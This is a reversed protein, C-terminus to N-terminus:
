QINCSDVRGLFEGWIPGDLFAKPLHGKPAQSVNFILNNNSIWLGRFRWRVRDSFNAYISYDPKGLKGGLSLWLNKQVNFGFQGGSSKNWLQNIEMLSPCSLKELDASDIFGEFERNAEKLIIKKTEQDAQQLNGSALFNSLQEYKSSSITPIYSVTNNTIPPSNQNTLNLNLSLKASLKPLSELLKHLPIGLNFGEKIATGDALKTGEARGHIGILKGDQNLVPGGSMGARTINTYVLDYGSENGPNITSIEGRTINFTQSQIAQGPLPFGAVFVITLPRINKSDTLSAIQYNNPSQFSIIALDYNPIIVINQTDITHYKQDSTILDAEEGRNINNVVHAATLVYYKNGEKAIIVGSGPSGPGKILVTIKEAIIGIEEQSIAKVQEVQSIVISATTGFIILPKAINEIWM